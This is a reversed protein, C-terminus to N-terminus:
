RFRQLVADEAEAGARQVRALPRIGFRARARHRNVLGSGVDEFIGLVGGIQEVQLAEAVNIRADHIRGRRHEFLAHRSQFAAHARQRHGAPLRRLKDRDRIQEACPSSITADM